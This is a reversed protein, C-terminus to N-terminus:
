QSTFPKETIYVTIKGTYLMLNSIDNTAIKEGSITTASEIYHQCM